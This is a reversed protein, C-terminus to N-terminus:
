EEELGDALSAVVREALERMTAAARRAFRKVYLDDDLLWDALSAIQGEVHQAMPGFTVGEQHQVGSRVLDETEDDGRTAIIIERALEM